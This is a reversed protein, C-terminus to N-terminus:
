TSFTLTNERIHLRVSRESPWEFNVCEFADAVSINADEGINFGLTKYPQSGANGQRPPAGPHFFSTFSSGVKWVLVTGEELSVTVLRRGDPSFSCATPQKKHGELVYLQTATKLDYMVFAGECTGVALRQTAMHFDVTPFTKVVYGIIETATDHVADRNSTSNPDLSKVVAEMLRPLNSYLLLPKKRTLLAVLQMVIKRYELNKPSLIDLTLTTMFLPTNTSAIQFIAQRAQQGVNQVSVNDKRSNMALTFLARLIAMADVYRQWVQFGRTCLDVALLRSTLDEKHLYSAVSKSIDALTDDSLLAHKEVSVYGCLFVALSSVKSHDLSRETSPLHRKWAGVLGVSEEGGLRVVGADVLIKTAQRVDNTTEFWKRALWVLDPPIYHQGIVTPLSTAYFIIVTECDDHLAEYSSLAKLVAVIAAARLASADGSISWANRSDSRCCASALRSCARGLRGRSALVGLKSTCIEDIEPSLTPTLLLSLLARLQPLPTARLSRKPIYSSANDLATTDKATFVVFRQLALSTACVPGGLENLTTPLSASLQSTQNDLIFEDWSSKALSEKAKERDMARRFERVKFDWLRASGDGYIAMIQEHDAGGAYYVHTLASASGPILCLLQFENLTIVAITGDSSFCLVYGGFPNATEHQPRIQAVHSLPEVFHIFRMLLKLDRLSWIAVGGDDSGGIIFANGTRENRIFHLSQISAAISYKSSAVFFPKEDQHGAEPLASSPPSDSVPECCRLALASCSAQRIYGDNYGLLVLDLELPLVATLIADGVRCLCTM